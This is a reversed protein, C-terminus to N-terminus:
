DSGGRGRGGSHKELLSFPFHFSVLICYTLNNLVGHSALPGWTQTEGATLAANNGEGSCTQEPFFSISWVLRCTEDDFGELCGNYNTLKM